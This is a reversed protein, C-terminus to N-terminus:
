LGDSSYMARVARATSKATLLIFSPFKYTQNYIHAYDAKFVVEKSNAIFKIPLIIQSIKPPNITAMSYKIAPNTRQQVMIPMGKPIWHKLIPIKVKIGNPRSTRSTGPCVPQKDVIKLIIQIKRPPIQIASVCKIKPIKNAIVM